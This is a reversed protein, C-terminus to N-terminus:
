PAMGEYDSINENWYLIQYSNQTRGANLNVVARIVRVARSNDARAAATLTLTGTQATTLRSLIASNSIERSLEAIDRFPAVHRREYIARATSEPMGPISMLTPLEAHNVNIQDRTLYVTFFRSLGYMYTVTGDSSREPKGYFYDRTMGRVLLLEEVAAIRGNKPKYAPELSQYYEEEAGNPHPDDDQDRWDLISETIISADPEEIGSARILAFLQQESVTNINIKGSEDVIDVQYVGGGFSGTIRGVDIPDADRQVASQRVTGSMRQQLLWYITTEMGARAIFYSKELTQTNRAASMEMRSERAFSLTMVALATLIWLMVILIVGSESNADRFNNTIYM